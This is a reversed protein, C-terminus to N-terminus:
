FENLCDEIPYLGDYWWVKERPNWKFHCRKLASRFPFTNGSVITRGYKKVVTIGGLDIVSPGRGYALSPNFDNPMSNLLDRAVNIRQMDDHGAPNRDPHYKLALRRHNKKIVEKTVYRDKIDLINLAEDVTMKM